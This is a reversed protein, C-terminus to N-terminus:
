LIRIKDPLYHQNNVVVIEGPTLAMPHTPRILIMRFSGTLSHRDSLM